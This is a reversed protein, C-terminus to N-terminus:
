ETDGGAADCAREDDAHVTGVAGDMHLPFFLQVPDIVSAGDSAADHKPLAGGAVVPAEGNVNGDLPLFHKIVPLLDLASRPDFWAKIRQGEGYANAKVKAQRLPWGGSM